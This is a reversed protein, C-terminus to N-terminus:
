TDSNQRHFAKSRNCAQAEIAHMDVTESLDIGPTTCSRQHFSSIVGTATCDLKNLSPTTYETQKPKQPSESHSHSRKDRIRNHEVWQNVRETSFKSPVGLCGLNIRSDVAESIGDDEDDNHSGPDHRYKGSIILNSPSKRDLPTAMVLQKHYESHFKLDTPSHEDSLYEFKSSNNQSSKRPSNFRSLDSQDYDTRVHSPSPRGGPSPVSVVLTAKSNMTSNHSILRM